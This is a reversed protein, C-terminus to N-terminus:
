LSFNKVLGGCGLTKFVEKDNHRKELISFVSSDSSKTFMLKSPCKFFFHKYRIYIM